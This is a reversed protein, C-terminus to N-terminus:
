MANGRPAWPVLIRELLSVLAFLTFSMLVLIFIDAFIRATQLNPTAQLIVYGLGGESGAYEAFVAGIAAFTAAIRLGSFISPLAGPFEIRKFIAWRNADLTKMMHIYDDEVSRLGDIGNVVVPFFCILAVVVLKPLIGFGLIITLIPALVVIPITQSGILLPYLTRRLPGFLHLLIALGIGAFAAILFGFVVERLTIWMAPELYPTWDQKLAVAVQSPAPLLYKPVNFGRIIVEWLVLLALTFLAALGYSRWFRKLRGKRQNTPAMPAPPEQTAPEVPAKTSM